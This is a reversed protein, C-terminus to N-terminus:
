FPIWDTSQSDEPWPFWFRGDLIEENAPLAVPWFWFGDYNELYWGRNSLWADFAVHVGMSYHADDSCDAFLSKGDSMVANQEGAIMWSLEGAPNTTHQIRKQAVVGPFTALIDAILQDINM